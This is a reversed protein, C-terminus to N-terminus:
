AAPSLAQSAVNQIRRREHGSQSIRACGPCSALHFCPPPMVPALWPKRLAHLPRTLAQRLHGLASVTGCHVVRFDVQHSLLTSRVLREIDQRADVICGNAVGELLVRQMHRTAEADFSSESLAACDQSTVPRPLLNSRLVPMPQVLLRCVQSWEGAWM